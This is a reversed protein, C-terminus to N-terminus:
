PGAHWRSSKKVIFHGFCGANTHGIPCYRLSHEDSPPRWHSKHFGCVEEISYHARYLVAADCHGDFRGAFPPCTAKDNHQNNGQRGGPRYLALLRWIAADLPKRHLRPWAADPLASRIADACRWPWWFPGRRLYMREGGGSIEVATIM